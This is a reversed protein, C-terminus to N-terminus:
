RGGHLKRLRRREPKGSPTVPLGSVAVVRRPVMYAPLARKARALFERPSWSQPDRPVVFAWPVEGLMGREDPMGVVLYDLVGDVGGLESEVEAPFFSFGGSCIRDDRRGCVELFGDGDMRGLDGTPLWGHTTTSQGAGDRTWYSVAMQPGRLHIEGTEGAGLSRGSEDRIDGQVEPAPLGVTHLRDRHSRADLIFARSCETLGYHLYLASGPCLDMMAELEHASVPGSGIELSRCAALATRAREPSTELLMRIVPPPAFWGTIGHEAVAELLAPVSLIEQNFVLRGGAVLTAAVRQWAGSHTIPALILERHGADFGYRAALTTATWLMQCHNLLVGKPEGTSGSSFRILAHARPAPAPPLASAASTALAADGLFIQRQPLGIRFAIAEGPGPVDDSAGALMRVPDTQRRVRALRGEGAAPDVPVAIAGVSTVALLGVLHELGNALVLMVRDGPLVGVSRLHSVLARVLALLEGYLVPGSALQVAVRRPDAHAELWQPLAQPARTM